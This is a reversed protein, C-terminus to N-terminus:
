KRESTKRSNDSTIYRTKTTLPQGSNKTSPCLPMDMLCMFTFRSWLMLEQLFLSINHFCDETWLGRDKSPKMSWAVGWSSPLINGAGCRRVVFSQLGRHCRMLVELRESCEKTGITKNRRDVGHILNKMYDFMEWYKTSSCLENGHGCCGAV